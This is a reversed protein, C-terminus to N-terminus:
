HPKRPFTNPGTKTLRKMLSSPSLTYTHLNIIKTRSSRCIIFPSPFLSRPCFSSLSGEGQFYSHLHEQLEASSRPLVAPVPLVSQSLLLLSLKSTLQCHLIFIRFIVIFTPHIQCCKMMAFPVHCRSECREPCQITLHSSTNFYM